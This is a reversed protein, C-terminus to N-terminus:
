KKRLEPLLEDKVWAFGPEVRLAKQYYSQAMNYNGTKSYAQGITALLNLYNWNNLTLRRNEEMIQEAKKYYSIAETKSGGFAAPMYFQINGYQVYALWNNSDLEKAKKAANISRPGLIPARFNNLDIRFGYFAAKYAEAMSLKYNNNELTAINNKALELYKRAESKKDNGLCWAIYGYQYNTLELIFENDKPETRNMNDIVRKWETMNDNIYAEYVAIRNNGLASLSLFVSLIIFCYKAREM